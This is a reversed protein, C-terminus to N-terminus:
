ASARWEFNLRSAVQRFGCRKMNALSPNPENGVPEGTETVIHTCGAAIADDIRRAMVAGQGGRRRHSEAIGAVGLWARDGDIFLCAGGVPRGQDAVSYVKWRPRGRLAALWQSMVPPMAFAQAVATMAADVNGDNALAVTLDTAIRPPPDTGRLVKAWARRSPEKFGLARLTDPFQAPQAFPSWHLWWTRVGAQQYTAIVAELDSERASQELGLGMARNFITVPVGSAILLTMGAIRGVTLGLATKIAPPAAEFLDAYAAAEIEDAILAATSPAIM